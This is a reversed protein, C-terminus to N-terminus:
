QRYEVSIRTLRILTGSWNMCDAGVLTTGDGNDIITYPLFAIGGPTISGGNVQGCQKGLEFPCEHWPYDAAPMRERAWGHIGNTLIKDKTAPVQVWVVQRQNAHIPTDVSIATLTAGAKEKSQSPANATLALVLFFMGLRSM